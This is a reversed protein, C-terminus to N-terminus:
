LFYVLLVLDLWHTRICSIESRVTKKITTTKNRKQNKPPTKPIKKMIKKKKLNVLSRVLIIIKQDM